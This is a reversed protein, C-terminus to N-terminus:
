FECPSLGPSYPPHPLRAIHHKDFKSGHHCMSDDMVLWFTAPPMRRRFYLNEAKSDPFVHNIFYHQNFKSEKPLVDLLILQRVTFFIAIVTKKAGITQRTRSIVESPARAFM